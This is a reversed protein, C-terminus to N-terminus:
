FPLLYGCIYIGLYVSSLAGLHNFILHVGALPYTYAFQGSHGDPPPNLLSDWERVKGYVIGVVIGM